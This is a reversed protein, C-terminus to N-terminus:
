ARNHARAVALLAPGNAADPQDDLVDVAFGVSDLSAMLGDRDLWTADRRTGGCFGTWDLADLYPYHYGQYSRGGRSTLSVPAQIRRAVNKDMDEQRPDVYHAWLALKDTVRSADELLSVPDLMHYLVGIMVVLDFRQDTNNLFPRFDGFQFRVRDLGLLEKSILCRLYARSNAEIAIVSRAGAQQFMYSHGGELPGLELVDWGDIGGLHDIALRVRDDAFLPASGSSAGLSGPLQSSWDGEFLKLANEPSPTEESFFENIAM